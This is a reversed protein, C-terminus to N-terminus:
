NEREEKKLEFSRLYDKLDKKTLILTTHLNLTGRIRVFIFNKIHDGDERSTKNSLDLVGSFYLSLDHDQLPLRVGIFVFSM